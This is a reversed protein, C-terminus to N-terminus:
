YVSSFAGPNSLPINGSSQGSSSIPQPSLGALLNTGGGTAAGLAAISMGYIDKTLAQNQTNITNEQSFAQNNASTAQSAYGTPNYDGSLQQLGGVAREYNERGTEYNKQTIGLQENSLQGAANSALGAKIQQDIGSELGSDGGRGALQGGLARAANAYNGGTTNLAQTNQAALEQPSFGQQNVGANVIPTLSSNLSDM